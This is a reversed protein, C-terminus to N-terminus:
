ETLVPWHEIFWHITPGTRQQEITKRAEAAHETTYLAQVDHELGPVVGDPHESWCVAYVTM